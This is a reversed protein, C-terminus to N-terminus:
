FAEGDDSQTGRVIQDWSPMPARSKKSSDTKVSEPEPTPAPEDQPDEGLDDPVIEVPQTISIVEALVEIEPELEPEPEPVAIPEPEPVDEVIAEVEAKARRSRFAELKDATVVPDNSATDEAFTAPKATARLPNDIKSGPTSLSQANSTEPTLLYRRPDITWTAAGASGNIEYAVTILWVSNEARSASWTVNKAGAASLNEEIVEGFPQKAVDNFRDAPLEIRISKALDVMHQLEELVPHAFREVLTLNTGSSEAIENISKGARVADQIQRPTLQEGSADPLRHEKITRTLTDDIAVSFKEGDASVLLLNNEERGIPNLERM